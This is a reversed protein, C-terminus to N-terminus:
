VFNGRLKVEKILPRLQEAMAAAEHHSYPKVTRLSPSRATAPVFQQLVLRRAGELEKGIALIDDLNVIGPVLTTRFEYDVESQLLLRITRRIPALDVMRGAAHQYRRDLRTKVDMAVFDVLKLNMLRKLAYPFSGNTDIKIKLGMQRISHCLEFLEPHMLPEGGSVVVADLWGLKTELSSAIESWTVERLSRDDAAIQSNHCFPCAFNCGGIFIVSAIKGDWDILSTAVLGVIRM